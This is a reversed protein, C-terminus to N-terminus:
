GRTPTEIDWGLSACVARVAEALTPSAYAAVEHPGGRTEAVPGITREPATPWPARAVRSYRYAVLATAASRATIAELAPAFAAWSRPSLSFPDVHVLLAGGGPAFAARDVASADDVIVVGTLGEAVLQSTLVARSAANAEGLVACTRHPGLADIVLGSSCRYHGNRRLSAREKAVYGAYAPHRSELTSVEREWRARDPLPAHLQFAHTDVFSVRSPSRAVLLSALEVLAAHKIVDGLNGVNGLQRNQMRAMRADTRVGAIARYKQTTWAGKSARGPSLTADLIARRRM